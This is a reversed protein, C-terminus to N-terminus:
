KVMFANKGKPMIKMYCNQEVYTANKCIFVFINQCMLSKTKSVNRNKSRLKLNQLVFIYHGLEVLLTQKVSSM